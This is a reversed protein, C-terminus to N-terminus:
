KQLDECLKRSIVEGALRHGDENWHGYGVKNGFGHLYVKRGEAYEQFPQALNLVTIGNRDGFSKLRHDPYFIDRIGLRRMFEQRITPDPHVQISNSLTVVFFRAGKMRVENRMEILLDETIRWAEDWVSDLPMLYIENDLGIDQIVTEPLGQAKRKQVIMRQDHFINKVRNLVQLVRSHDLLQYLKLTKRFRFQKSQKFSDDLVLKGNRYIYFPRMPEELAKSNNRIDNGTLFALVIIDPSYDWARHRLTLFEQTTGYGSVGFNLVEIKKGSSAFCENLRQEMISWFTQDMSVQRAEAFSDGLIAIRITGPAQQKVHDRDRMGDSNIQVYAKGEELSWGHAGPRLSVGRHDDPVVFTPFSVGATRLAIELLVVGAIIGGFILSLNTIWRKM